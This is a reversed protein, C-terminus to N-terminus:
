LTWGVTFRFGNGTVDQTLPYMFFGGITVGNELTRQFGSTLIQNDTDRLGNINFKLKTEESPQYWFGVGLDWDSDTDSVDEDDAETDSSIFDVFPTWQRISWGLELNVDNVTLSVDACDELVCVNYGGEARQFGAGVYFSKTRSHSFTFAM